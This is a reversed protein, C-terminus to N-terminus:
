GATQADGRLRAALALLWPPPGQPCPDPQGAFRGWLSLALAASRALAAADAGREEPHLPALLPLALLVVRQAAAELEAPLAQVAEQLARWAAASAGPPPPALEPLPLVASLGRTLRAGLWSALRTREDLRLAATMVQGVFRQAFAREDGDAERWRRLAQEAHDYDALRLQCLLLRRWGDPDSGQRETYRQFARAAAIVDGLAECAQGLDFWAVLPVGSHPTRELLVRAARLQGCRLALRGLQVAAWPHCREGAAIWAHEDREDLQPWARRAIDVAAALDKGRRDLHEALLAAILLPSEGYRQCLRELGAAGGWSAPGSLVLGELFWADIGAPPHRVDIPQAEQRRLLWVEVRDTARDYELYCDAQVGPLWAWLALIRTGLVSDLNRTRESPLFLRARAFHLFDAFSAPFAGFIIAMGGLRLVRQRVGGVTALEVDLGAAVLPPTHDGGRQLARARQWDHGLELLPM